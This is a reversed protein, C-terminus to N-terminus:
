FDRPQTMILLYYLCSFEVEKLILHYIRRKGNVTQQVNNTLWQNDNDDKHFSSNIVQEENSVKPDRVGFIDVASM